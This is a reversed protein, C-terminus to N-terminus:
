TIQACEDTGTTEGLRPLLRAPFTAVSAMLFVNM